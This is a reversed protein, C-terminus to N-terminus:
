RAGTRRKINMMMTTVTSRALGLTRGAERSSEDRAFARLLELERPTVPSPEPRSFRGEFVDGPQLRGSPGQASLVLAATPRYDRDLMQTKVREVRWATAEAM